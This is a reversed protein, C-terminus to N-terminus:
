HKGHNLTPDVFILADQIQKRTPTLNLQKILLDIADQPHNIVFEYSINVIRLVPSKFMMNIWSSYRQIAVLVDAPKLKNSFAKTWSQVVSQPNRSVFVLQINAPVLRCYWVPWTFIMRPDKIGIHKFDHGKASETLSNIVFDISLTIYNKNFKGGKVFELWKVGPPCSWTSKDMQMLLPDNILHVIALESYGKPNKADVPQMEEDTGMWVGLCRLLGAVCSTGSRPNGIVPVFIMINECRENLNLFEQVTM